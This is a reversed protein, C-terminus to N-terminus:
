ASPHNGDGREIGVRVRHTPHAEPRDHSDCHGAPIGTGGPLGYEVQHRQGKIEAKLLSM